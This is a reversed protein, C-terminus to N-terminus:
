GARVETWVFPIVERKPIAMAQFVAVEVRCQDGFIRAAVPVDIDASYRLVLRSLHRQEIIGDADIEAQLVEGPCAVAGDNFRPLEIAVQYVLERARM